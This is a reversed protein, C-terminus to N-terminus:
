NYLRNKRVISQVMLISHIHLPRYKYFLQLLKMKRTETANEYSIRTNFNSITILLAPPIHMTSFVISKKKNLYKRVSYTQIIVLNEVEEWERKEKRNKKELFKTSSKYDM